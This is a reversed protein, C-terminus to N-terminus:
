KDCLLIFDVGMRCVNNKTTTLAIYKWLVKKKCAYQPGKVLCHYMYNGDRNKRIKEWIQVGQWIIYRMKPPCSFLLRSSSYCTPEGNELVYKAPGVTQLELHLCSPWKWTFIWINFFWICHIFIINTRRTYSKVSKHSLYARFDIESASSSM